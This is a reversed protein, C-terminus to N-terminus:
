LSYSEILNMYVSDKFHAHDVYHEESNFLNNKKIYAPYRLAYINKLKAQREVHECMDVILQACSSSEDNYFDIEKPLPPIILIIRQSKLKLSNILDISDNVQSKFNELIEFSLKNNEQAKYFAMRTDIEGISIIVKQFPYSFLFSNRLGEIKLNKQPSSLISYRLGPIYSFNSFLRLPSVAMGILHSDGIFYIKRSDQIEFNQKIPKITLYIVLMKWISLFYDSLWGKVAVSNPIGLKNLIEVSKNRENMLLYNLSLLIEMKVKEEPNCDSLLSSIHYHIDNFNCSYFVAFSKKVRDISTSLLIDKLEGKEFILNDLM